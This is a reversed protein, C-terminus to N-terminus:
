LDGDGGMAAEDALVLSRAPLAARVPLDRGALWDAVADRKGAGTVLVLGRRGARLSAASLTVREPPPKPAEYEAVVLREGSLDRGPFLSATHGDEGLGLLVLDFPRHAAVIEAYVRAAREAGSEAPIAFVQEAPIAVHDLWARAAMRSNRAEDGPPLCREDGYFVLWKNWDTACGRLLRYAAEPTRGGALVLSFVGRAAIARRAAQCIEQAARVAVADADALIEWDADAM